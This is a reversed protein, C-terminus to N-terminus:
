PHCGSGAFEDVSAGGQFSGAADDNEFVLECVGLREVGFEVTAQVGALDTGAIGLGRVTALEPPVWSGREGFRPTRREIIMLMAVSLRTCVPSPRDRWSQTQVLPVQHTRHSAVACVQIRANGRLRDVWVNPRVVSPPHDRSSM